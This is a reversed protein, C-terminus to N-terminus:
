GADAIRRAQKQALAAVDELALGAFGNAEVSATVDDDRWAVFFFRIRNRGTGQDTTLAVAEDGLKPAEVPKWGLGQVTRAARVAALEDEAGDASQFLDVLSAVVLPGKTEATGTRRYRAKWGEERGFREPKGGTEVAGERGEDFRFFARPLDAPQLVLDKLHEPTVSSGGDDGTLSCGALLLAAFSFALARM